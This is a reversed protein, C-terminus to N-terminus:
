TARRGVVASLPPSVVSDARAAEARASASLQCIPLHGLAGLNSLAGAQLVTRFKDGAPFVDNNREQPAFPAFLQVM